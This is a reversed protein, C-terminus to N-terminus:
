LVSDKIKNIKDKRQMKVFVSAIFLSYLHGAHLDGNSYFIPTSVLIKEDNMHHGMVNLFILEM